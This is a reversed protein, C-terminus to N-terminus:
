TEREGNQGRMTRKLTAKRLSDKAQERDDLVAEIIAPNKHNDGSEVGVSHEIRTSANRGLKCPPKTILVFRQEKWM